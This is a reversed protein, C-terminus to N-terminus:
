TQAIALRLFGILWSQRDTARCFCKGKYWKKSIWYGFGGEGVNAVDDVEKIHRPHERHYLRETFCHNLPLFCRVSAVCVEFSLQFVYPVYKLLTSLPLSLVAQTRQSSKM